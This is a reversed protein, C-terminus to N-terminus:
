RTASEFSTMFSPAPMIAVSAARTRPRNIAEAFPVNSVILLPSLSVPEFIMKSSRVMAWYPGSVLSARSISRRLTAAAIARIM